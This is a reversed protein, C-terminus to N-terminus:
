RLTPPAGGRCTGIVAAGGQRWQAPRHARLTPGVVAAPSVNGMTCVSVGVLTCAKSASVFVRAGQVGGRAGGRQRSCACRPLQPAPTRELLVSHVLNEEGLLVGARVAEAARLLPGFGRAAEVDIDAYVGGETYLVVLRAGGGGLGCEGPSMGSPERVPTAFSPACTHPGLSWPTHAAEQAARAQSTFTFITIYINTCPYPLHVYTCTLADTDALADLRGKSELTREIRASGPAGRGTRPHTSHSYAYRQIYNNSRTHRM